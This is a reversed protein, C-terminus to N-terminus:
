YVKGTIEHFCSSKESCYILSSSKIKMLVCQVQKLFSKFEPTIKQSTLIYPCHRELEDLARTIGSFENQKLRYNFLLLESKKFFEQM